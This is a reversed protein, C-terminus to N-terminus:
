KLVQHKKLRCARFILIVLHTYLAFAAYQFRHRGNESEGGGNELIHYVFLKFIFRAGLFIGSNILRFVAEVGQWAKSEFYERIFVITCFYAQLGDVAFVPLFVFKWSISPDFNDLKLCLLITTVLLGLFNLLIEFESMVLWSTLTKINM